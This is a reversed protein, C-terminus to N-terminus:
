KTWRTPTSTVNGALEHHAPHGDPYEEFGPFPPSTPEHLTNRGDSWPSHPRPTIPEFSDLEATGPLSAPKCASYPPADEAQYSGLRLDSPDHHTTSHGHVYSAPNVQTEPPQPGQNQRGLDRKLFKLETRHRGLYFVLIGLAGVVALGGVVIGAISGESLDRAPSPAPSSTSKVTASSKSQATRSAISPSTQSVDTPGATRSPLTEGTPLREGPALMYSSNRADDKQTDLSVSSNQRM